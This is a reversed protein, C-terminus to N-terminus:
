RGTSLSKFRRQALPLSRGTSLRKMATAHSPQANSPAQPRENGRVGSVPGAADLPPVPIGVVALPVVLPPAEIVPVPVVAPIAVAPVAVVPPIVEPCDLVVPVPVVVAPLPPVPVPALM